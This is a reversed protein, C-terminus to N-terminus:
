PFFHLLWFSVSTQWWQMSGGIDCSPTSAGSCAAKTVAGTSCASLQGWSCNAFCPSRCCPVIFFFCVGVLLIEMPPWSLETMAPSGSNFLIPCRCPRRFMVNKQLVTSAWMCWVCVRMPVCLKGGHVGGLCLIHSGNLQFFALLRTTNIKKSINTFLM